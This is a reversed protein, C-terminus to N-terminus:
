AAAIWPLRFFLWNLSHKQCLFSTMYMRIMAMPKKDNTTYPLYATYDEKFNFEAQEEKIIIDSSQTTYFRYAVGENYARFIIGFGGKLKLDLENGTAVFEKFRYFPSEINDKIKRRREGTIRPTKGVITGNELVLGINSHSLITDNGHMVQYALENGASIEVKLTGDPSSLVYKKEKAAFSANGILLLLSLIALCLKKNNKM